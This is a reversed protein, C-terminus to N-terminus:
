YVSEDVTETSAAAHVIGSFWAIPEEGILPLVFQHNLPTGCLFILFSIFPSIGFSAKLAFAELASFATASAIKSFESAHVENEEEKHKKLEENLMEIFANHAPTVQSNANGICQSQIYFKKQSAYQGEKYIDMNVIFTYYYQVTQNNSSENRTSVLHSLGHNM